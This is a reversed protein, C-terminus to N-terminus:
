KEESGAINAINILYRNIPNVLKFRMGQAIANVHLMTSVGTKGLYM